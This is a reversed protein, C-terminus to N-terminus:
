EKYEILIVGTTIWRGDISGLYDKHKFEVHYRDNGDDTVTAEFYRGDHPIRAIGVGRGKFDFKGSIDVTHTDKDAVNDVHVSNEVYKGPMKEDYYERLFTELLHEYFADSHQKAAEQEMIGNAPTDAADTDNTDQQATKGGCATMFLGCLLVALFKNFTTM